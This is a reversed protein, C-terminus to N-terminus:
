ETQKPFELFCNEKISFSVMPHVGTANLLRHFFFFPYKASNASVPFALGGSRKAENLKEM